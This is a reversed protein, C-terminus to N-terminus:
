INYETQEYGYPKLQLEKGYKMHEGQGQRPSKGMAECASLICEKEWRVGLSASVAEACM